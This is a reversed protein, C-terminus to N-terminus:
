IVTNYHDLDATGLRPYAYGYPYTLFRLPYPLKLNENFIDKSPKEFNM